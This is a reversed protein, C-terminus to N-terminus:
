IQKNEKYKAMMEKLVDGHEIFFAMDEQSLTQLPKEPVVPAVDEEDRVRLVRRTRPDIVNGNVDLRESIKTPNNSVAVPKREM